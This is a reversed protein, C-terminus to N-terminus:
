LLYYEHFQKKEPFEIRFEAELGGIHRNIDLYFEKLKSRIIFESIGPDENRTTRNERRCTGPSYRSNTIGIGRM